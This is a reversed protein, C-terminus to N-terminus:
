PRGTATGKITVRAPGPLGAVNNVAPAGTPGVCFVAGLTPNSVDGMPTDEMGVAILTGTGPQECGGGTLFCRRNPGLCSGGGRRLRRRRQLWAARSRVGGLLASRGSRDHLVWEQDAPDSDITDSCELVTDAITTDDRAAARRPPSASGPAARRGSMGYQSTCAQGNNAGSLCRRGGCFPRSRARRIPVIPTTTRVATASVNNCTDSLSVERGFRGHLEPQQRHTDAHGSRDRQQSRDVLDRHHGCSEAPCDLSTRASTPVVRCSRRQCRM